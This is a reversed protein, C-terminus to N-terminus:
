LVNVFCCKFYFHFLNLSNSRKQSIQSLLFFNSNFLFVFYKTAKLFCSFYNFFFMDVDFLYRLYIFISITKFYCVLSCGQKSETPVNKLYLSKLFCLLGFFTDTGFTPFSCQGSEAIKVSRKSVNSVSIYNRQVFRIRRPVSRVLGGSHRSTVAASIKHCAVM